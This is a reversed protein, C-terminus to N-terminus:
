IVIEVKVHLRRELMRAIILSESASGIFVRSKIQLDM